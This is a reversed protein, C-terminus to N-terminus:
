FYYDVLLSAQHLYQWTYRASVGYKQRRQWGAEVLSGLGSSTFKAPEAYRVMKGLYVSTATKTAYLDISSTYDAQAFGYNLRGGIFWSAKNTYWYKRGLLGIQVISVQEKVTGVFRIPEQKPVSFIINSQDRYNYQDTFANTTGGAVLDRTYQASLYTIHGGWSVNGRASPKELGLTAIYGINTRTRSGQDSFDYNPSGGFSGSSEVVKRTYLGKTERITPSPIVVTSVGVQTFFRVPRRISAPYVVARSGSQQRFRCDNYASVARALAEGNFPFPQMVNTGENCDALVQNIVKLYQKNTKLFRQGQVVVEEKLMTLEVLTDRAALYYRERGFPKHNDTYFQASGEVLKQLFLPRGDVVKREFLLDNVRFAILDKVEYRVPKEQCSAKFHILQNTFDLRICGKVTDKSPM